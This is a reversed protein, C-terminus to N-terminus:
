KMRVQPKDNRSVVALGHMKSMPSRSVAVRRRFRACDNLGMPESAPMNTAIFKM